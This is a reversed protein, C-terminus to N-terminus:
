QPIHTGFIHSYFSTQYLYQMFLITCNQYTLNKYRPWWTLTLIVTVHAFAHIHITNAPPRGEISLCTKNTRIEKGSILLKRKRKRTIHRFYWQLGRAVTQRHTGSDRDAIWWTTTSMVPDLTVPLDHDFTLVPLAAQRATRGDLVSYYSMPVHEVITKIRKSLCCM